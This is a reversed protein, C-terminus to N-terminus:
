SYKPPADDREHREESLLKILFGALDRVEAPSFPKAVYYDCGAALVKEKDGPMAYATVGVIITDPRSEKMMRALAFGDLSPVQMDLFVLCPAHEQFKRWGEKGDTAVIVKALEELTALLLELNLDNDEIVLIKTDMM